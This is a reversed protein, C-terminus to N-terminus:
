RSEIGHRIRSPETRRDDDIPLYVALRCGPGKEFVPPDVQRQHEIGGTAHQCSIQVARSRVPRRVSRREGRAAHRRRHDDVTARDDPHEVVVGCSQRGAEVAHGHATADGVEVLKGAGLHEDADAAARELERLERASDTDLASALMARREVTLRDVSARREADDGGDVGVM